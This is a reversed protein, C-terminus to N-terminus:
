IKHIKHKEEIDSSPSANQNRQNMITELYSKEKKITHLEYLQTIEKEKNENKLHSYNFNIDELKVGKDFLQPLLWDQRFVCATTPVNGFLCVHHTLYSLETKEVLLSTIKKLEEKDIPYDRLEILCQILATNDQKDAQNINIGKEILYYIFEPSFFERQKIAYQLLNQNEGNCANIDMTNLCEKVFKIDGRSIAIFMIKPDNKALLLKEYGDNILNLIKKYSM